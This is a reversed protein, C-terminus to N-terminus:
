EIELFLAPVVSRKVGVTFVNRVFANPTLLSPTEASDVGCLPLTSAHVTNATPGLLLSFQLLRIRFDDGLFDM